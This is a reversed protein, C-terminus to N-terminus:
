RAIEQDIIAKLVSRVKDGDRQRLGELLLEPNTAAARGHRVIRNDDLQAALELDTAWPARLDYFVRDADVYVRPGALEILPKRSLVRAIEDLATCRELRLTQWYWILYRNVRRIEMRNLEDLADDFAWMTEVATKAIDLFVERVSRGDGPHFHRTFALEHLMSWVDAEYDVAELIKPFRRIAPATAETLRHSAIHLAEHFFLMRGARSQEEYSQLRRRIAAVLDDDVLWADKPQEYRFGGEVVGASAHLRAVAMVTNHFAALGLWAGTWPGPSMELLEFWRDDPCKRAFTAISAAFGKVRTLDEAWAERVTQAAAREDDTLTARRPGDDRLLVARRQRPEATHFYQYTQVRHHQTSSVLTGLRFALGAPVAAFLHVHRANPRHTKLRDLAAKVVDAVADLDRASRLVDESPSPVGIDIEASPLEVVRLTEAPDVRATVSVRIIVDDNSRVVDQPLGAITVDVTASASDEAWSWAHTKHHRQFVRARRWRDVVSGLHIALPVPALGFYALDYDPHERIVPELRESLLCEQARRLEGWDVHLMEALSLRAPEIKVPIAATGPFGAAELASRMEEDTIAEHVPHHLLVFGPM